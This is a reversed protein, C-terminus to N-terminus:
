RKKKWLLFLSKLDVQMIASALILLAGGVVLRPTVADYGLLVSLVAAFFSEMMLILSASVTDTHMQGTIQMAQGLFTIVIALIIIPLLAKAWHVQGLTSREGVLVTLWGYTAQWSSVMFLVVWTSSFRASFKSFFIIELAWFITAILTLLDGYQLHLSNQGINTLIAMGIIALAIAFYTKRLPREHWFLWLILPAIIVYLATIFSSKAPTTYRLGATQLYYALYESAGILAGLKIDQPTMHNIQRHFLLYGFLASITGRCANILGSHMGSETAQKLFIYSSGWLITALLLLLAAQKKSIKM